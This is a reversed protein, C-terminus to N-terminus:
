ARPAALNLLLHRVPVDVRRASTRLVWDISRVPVVMASPSSPLHRSGTRGHRIARQRAPSGHGAAGFMHLAHDAAVHSFDRPPADGAGACAPAVVGLGGAVCWAALVIVRLSLREMLRTVTAERYRVLSSPVTVFVM